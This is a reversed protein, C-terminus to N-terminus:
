DPDVDWRIMAETPQRLWILIGITSLTIFMSVIALVILIDIHESV